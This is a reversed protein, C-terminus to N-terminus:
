LLIESTLAIGVSAPYRLSDEFSIDPVKKNIDFINTWVNGISVPTKLQSSLLASITDGFNEGCLIIHTIRHEPDGANEKLSHWYMYLKKIEQLLADENGKVGGRLPITSTFRVVRRRAVYLGVKDPGFNVILVTRPDHKPLLARAIVQSEIELSLLSLGAGQLTEVYTDVVAIPLAYVVVDLHNKEKHPFIRYDFILETQPVPINEEIKSEIASLVEDDNVVPIKATFLYAKEESVSVKVHNLKLDKKLSELIDVLEAQNNIAGDSVIGPALPREAYKEIHMAGNKKGFGICRVASDSISIGAFPIDLFKPPPFANFISVFRM